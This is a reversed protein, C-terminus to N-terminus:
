PTPEAPAEEAPAGEAPPTAPAAGGGACGAVQEDILPTYGDLLTQVDAAMSAEGSDVVMTAQEFVMGVEEKFAPDICSASAELKAKYEAIRTALGKLLEENRKQREEEERKNAKEAEIRAEEATKAQNVREIRAFVDHTPSLAGAKSDVYMQLYKLAKAFDKTYRENLTSANFYAAEFTPDTAIVEDYLDGAQKFEGLGRAAVALGLKADLSGPQTSLAAAFSQQALPYDGSNLAVYGLNMNAPYNTSELKVATKFKEIAASEDGQILFTVGMNNYTGPDGDNIELSKEAMLQSM